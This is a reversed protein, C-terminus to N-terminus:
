PREAFMRALGQPFAEPSIGLDTQFPSPDATNGELLMALQDTTLPYAPLWQLARTIARVAAAPAHIKRVRRRGIAAGVLDLIEEYSYPRPGVAEYAQGLAKDVRLARAFATAVQEVAIPQLQYRGDGIVPVAPTLRIIRALMTVFGDGPGFVVSPRFITWATGSARVAEEAQWKTRHYASPAGARAGLASMHVFRPVGAERAVRLMNETAVVHLRQFTVGRARHERIIGVLHIMAASGEAAASMGQPQLVDGPVRDIAAFGRLDAESGPRVL